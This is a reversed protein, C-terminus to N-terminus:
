EKSVNEQMWNLIDMFVEERIDEKLIEHRRDAYLKSHVATFGKKHLDDVIRLIDKGFNGIPDEAGSIFLLPFSRSISDAWTKKAARDVLSVVTYFGNYTFPVGNYTDEAFEKRNKKDLSLWSTGDGGSERLFRRNNMRLFGENLLKSRRRPNWANLMTLLLKGSSIMPSKGGTGVLIAGSFLSYNKRLLLRLVFSGMSHGLVFHNGEPYLKQLYRAMYEADEVLRAVPQKKQFFGLEEESRATKGHGRHDYLLVAYGAHAFFRAVEEYRGSHEQMGHLLLLSGKAPKEPEFIRYFLQNRGKGRDPLSLYGSSEKRM